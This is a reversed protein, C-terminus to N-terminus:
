RTKFVERLEQALTAYGAGGSPRGGHNIKDHLDDSSLIAAVTHGTAHGDLWAHADTGEERDKVQTVLVSCPRALNRAMDWARKLSRVDPPTVILTLSTSDVLRQMSLRDDGPTDVLMWDAQEPMEAGDPGDARQVDFPVRKGAQLTARMWGVCRGRPDADVIRVSEGSNYLAWATAIVSATAGAGPRVGIFTVTRPADSLASLEEGRHNAQESRREQAVVMRAQDIAEPHSTLWAELRLRARHTGDLEIGDAQAFRALQRRARLRLGGFVGHQEDAMLANALCAGRLPCMGCLVQAAATLSRQAGKDNVTDPGWMIDQVYPNMGQCLGRQEDRGSM